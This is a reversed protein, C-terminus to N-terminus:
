ATEVDRPFLGRGKCDPCAVLTESDDLYRRGTGTCASCCLAFLADSLAARVRHPWAYPAHPMTGTHDYLARADAVSLEISVM